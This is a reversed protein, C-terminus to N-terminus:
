RCIQEHKAICAIEPICLWITIGGPIDADVNPDKQGQSLLSGLQSSCGAYASAVFTVAIGLATEPKRHHQKSGSGMCSM